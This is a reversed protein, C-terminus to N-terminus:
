NEKGTLLSWWQERVRMSKKFYREARADCKVAKECYMMAFRDNMAIRMRGRWIEAQNRARECKKMLIREERKLRSIQDSLSPMTTTEKPLHMM